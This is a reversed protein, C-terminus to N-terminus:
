RFSFVLFPILILFRQTPQTQNSLKIPILRIFIASKKKMTSRPRKTNVNVITEKQLRETKHTKFRGTGPSRRFSPSRTSWDFCLAKQVTTAMRPTNSTLNVNLTTQSTIEMDPCLLSQTTIAIQTQNLTGVLKTKGRRNRCLAPLNLAHFWCGVPLSSLM